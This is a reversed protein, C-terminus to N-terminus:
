RGLEREIRAVLERVRWDREGAKLTADTELWARVKKEAAVATSHNKNGFYQSVEGFTAATHKRCLYIAVMRPHSVAWARKKSQLSGSPLRIVACVAEDVDRVGVIRVAHRLLDGLAERALAQDIPRGAVRSFHRLSHVAGELERVNGRLQQALFTLVDDPVAPTGTASKARLLDLRTAPDPPLLSWVAGGLLRDVLEPLLDEALRPHCDTTVVVQRNDALLADFTHLFEVQTAKKAALFNLDDILLVSCDRFQRRFSSQKGQHMSAVFANTFDEATAYRVVYDPWRRRLGAYVSELLHTKGTGVPGYLVLPNAGLGPEEVVSLASAHAVRNCPGVVFEALSRWKRKAKPPREQAREKPPAKPVPAAAAPDPTERAVQEQEARAARFLEPDIVFRVAVDDGAVERAADRVDDGFTAALWEQLMLNPVGVLLEGGRLAFRTHDRFWLNYRDANIRRAIAEELRPGVTLDVAPGGGAPRARPPLPRVSV